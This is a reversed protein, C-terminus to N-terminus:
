AVALLHANRLQITKFRLLPKSMIKSVDELINRLIDDLTVVPEISMHRCLFVGLRLSTEALTNEREIQTIVDQEQDTLTVVLASQNQRPRNVATAVRQQRPPVDPGGRCCSDENVLEGVIPRDGHFWSVNLHMKIVHQPFQNNSFPGKDICINVRCWRRKHNEMGITTM